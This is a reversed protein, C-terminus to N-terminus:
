VLNINLKTTQYLTLSMQGTMSCSKAAANLDTM